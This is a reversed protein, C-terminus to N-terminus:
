STSLTIPGRNRTLDLLIFTDLKPRLYYSMLLILKSKQLLHIIDVGTVDHLREGEFIVSVHHELCSLSGSLAAEEEEERVVVLEQDLSELAVLGFYQKIHKVIVDAVNLPRLALGNQGPDVSYKRYLRVVKCGKIDDNHLVSDLHVIAM